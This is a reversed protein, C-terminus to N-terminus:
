LVDPDPVVILSRLDAAETFFLACKLKVGSLIESFADFAVALLRRVIHL